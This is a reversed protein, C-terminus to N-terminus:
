PPKWQTKKSAKNIYYYRNTKADLRREWGPPLEPDTNHPPLSSPSAYDIYAQSGLISMSSPSSTSSSSVSAPSNALSLGTQTPTSPTIGDNSVKSQILPLLSDQISQLQIEIFNRLERKLDAIEKSKTGSVRRLTRVEEALEGVVAMATQHDIRLAKVQSALGVVTQQLDGLESVNIFPTQEAEEERMKDAIAKLQRNANTVEEQTNEKETREEETKRLLFTEREANNKEIIANEQQLAIIRLPVSWPQDDQSLEALRIKDAQTLRWLTEVTLMREKNKAPIICCQGETAGLRTGEKVARSTEKRVESDDLFNKAIEYLREWIKNDQITAGKEIMWDGFEKNIQLLRLLRGLLLFDNDENQLATYYNEYFDDNIFDEPYIIALYSLVATAGKVAFPDGLVLANSIKVVGYETRILHLKSQESASEWLKKIVPFCKKEDKLLDVDAGDLVIDSSEEIM